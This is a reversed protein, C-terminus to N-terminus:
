VPFPLLCVLILSQQAVGYSFSELCWVTVCNRMTVRMQRNFVSRAWCFGTGVFSVGERVRKQPDKSIYHHDEAETLSVPDPSREASFRNFM